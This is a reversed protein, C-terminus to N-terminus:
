ANFITIQVRKMVMQSRYGMGAKSYDCVQRRDCFSLQITKSFCDSEHIHTDSDRVMAHLYHALSEGYPERPERPLNPRIDWDCIRLGRIECGRAFDLQDVLYSVVAMPYAGQGRAQAIETLLQDFAELPIHLIPEEKSADIFPMEAVLRVLADYIPMATMSLRKMKGYSALDSEITQAVPSPSGKDHSPLALAGAITGTTAQIFERRNM